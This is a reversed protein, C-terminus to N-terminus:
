KPLVASTFKMPKPQASRDWGTKRSAPDACIRIKKAAEALRKVFEGKVAEHVFVCSCASCKQGQMGFASRSVGQVAKNLDANKNVITANKGGM